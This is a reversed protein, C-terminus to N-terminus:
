YKKVGCFYVQYFYKIDITDCELSDFNINEFLAWVPQKYGFLLINFQKNIKQIEKSLKTQKIKDTYNNCCYKSEGELSLIFESHIGLINITELDQFLGDISEKVPNMNIKVQDIINKRLEFTFESKKLDLEVPKYNQVNRISLIKISDYYNDMKKHIGHDITFFRGEHNLDSWKFGGKSWYEKTHLLTGEYVKHISDSKYLKNENNSYYDYCLISSNYVCEVKNKIMFKLKRNISNSNYITDYDMHFYLDNNSMGVGYDRKFGVPLCRTKSLYNQLINEKDFEFTIKELFNKIEDSSLHLYLIREDELFEKILSEKGDDIIILELKDQPYNFNNFNDKILPIFEKEGRLLTIVSISPQDVISM